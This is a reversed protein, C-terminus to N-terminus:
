EFARGMSLVAPDPEDHVASMSSVSERGFTVPLSRRKKKDEWFSSLLWRVTSNWIQGSNYDVSKLFHSLM